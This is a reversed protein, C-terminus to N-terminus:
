WAIFIMNWYVSFVMGGWIKWSSHGQYVRYIYIYTCLWGDGPWWWLGGGSGGDGQAARIWTWLTQPLRLRGSSWRSPPGKPIPNGLKKSTKGGRKKKGKKPSVLILLPSFTKQQPLYPLYISIQPFVNFSSSKKLRHVSLKSCHSAGREIALNTCM